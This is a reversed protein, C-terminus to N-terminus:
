YITNGCVSRFFDLRSVTSSADACEGPMVPSRMQSHGNLRSRNIHKAATLSRVGRHGIGRTWSSFDTFNNNKNDEVVSDNPAPLDDIDPPMVLPNKKQILFESSKESRKVNGSCSSILFFVLFLIIFNNKM